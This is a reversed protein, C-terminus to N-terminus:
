VVAFDVKVILARRDSDLPILTEDVDTVWTQKVNTIAHTTDGIVTTGDAKYIRVRMTCAATQWYADISWQVVGSGFPNCTVPLTDTTPVPSLASLFFTVDSSDNLATVLSAAGGENTGTTTGTLYVRVAANSAPHVYITVSATSTLGGSQTVTVPFTYRGQTAAVFTTTQGTPTALSPSAAGPPIETAAGWAYTLTGSGATSAAATLTVVAGEVVDQAPGANATPGTVAAPPGFQTTRGDEARGYDFGVIMGPTLATMAGVETAAIATTGADFAANTFTGLSTGWNSGSTFAQANITGTTATAVVLLIEWRLKVDLGVGAAVQRFGGTNGQVGIAGSGPGAGGAAVSLVAPQYMVRVSVGAANRMTGITVATGVTMGLDNKPTAIYESWAYTLSAVTLTQRVSRTLGATASCRGGSSGVVAYLPDYVAQGTGQLAINAGAITADTTGEYDFTNLTGM